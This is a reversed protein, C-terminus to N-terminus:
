VAVIGEMGSWATHPCDKHNDSVWPATMGSSSSLGSERMCRCRSIRKASADASRLFEARLDRGRSQLQTDVAM